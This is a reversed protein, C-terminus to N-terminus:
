GPHRTDGAALLILAPHVRTTQRQRTPAPRRTSTRSYAAVERDPHRDTTQHSTRRGLRPRRRAVAGARVRIVVGDVVYVIAELKPRRAAAIPWWKRDADLQVKESQKMEGYRRNTDPDVKPKGNRYVVLACDGEYAGLQRYLTSRGVELTDAIQDITLSEEGYM